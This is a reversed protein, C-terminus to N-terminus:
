ALCKSPEGRHARSSVSKRLPHRAPRFGPARVANRHRSVRVCRPQSKRCRLVIGWGAHWGRGRARDAGPSLLIGCARWWRASRRRPLTWLHEATSRESATEAFHMAIALEPNGPSATIDVAPHKPSPIASMRRAESMKAASVKLLKASERVGKAGM